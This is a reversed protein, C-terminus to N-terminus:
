SFEFLFNPLAGTFDSPYKCAKTGAADSDAFVLFNSQWPHLGCVEVDSADEPAVEWGEESPLRVFRKGDREYYDRSGLDFIRAHAVAYYFSGHLQPFPPIPSTTILIILASAPDPTQPM